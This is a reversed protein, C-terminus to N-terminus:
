EAQRSGNGESSITKRADDPTTTNERRKKPFLNSLFGRAQALLWWVLGLLGLSGVAFGVTLPREISRTFTEPSNHAVDKLGDEVGDSVKYAATVMAASLGVAMIRKGDLHKLITGSTKKYHKLLLKATKPSDAKGAYAIMKAADDPSLKVLVKVADDGFCEVAKKGLGPVRGELKVFEPGIRRALPLLDDAHLAFSRAVQPTRSCIRWFDTGHKSGQELTELGGRAVVKLVDDGYQKCAQTLAKESAKRVAPTLAKGSKKAAQEITESVVRRTVASAPGAFVMSVTFLLTFLIVTKHIM